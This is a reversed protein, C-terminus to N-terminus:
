HPRKGQDPETGGQGGRADTFGQQAPGPMGGPPKRGDEQRGLGQNGERRRNRAAKEGRGERPGTGVRRSLGFVGMTTETERNKLELGPKMREVEVGLKQVLVAAEELCQVGKTYKQLQSELQTQKRGLLSKFNQLLERFAVPTIHVRGGTREYEDRIELVSKHM